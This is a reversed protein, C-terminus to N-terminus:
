VGAGGVLHAQVLFSSLMRVHSPVNQVHNWALGGCEEWVGSTWRCLFRIKALEKRIWRPAQKDDVDVSAMVRDMLRGMARLGASHMLRSQRPPRGWADPFTDKVANWYTLLVCELGKLDATGAAINRYPFLCGSPSTMSDQIVQVLTTDSVFATHSKGGPMSSRRILGRFPSDPHRNLMECLASPVRRASLHLPLVTSVEPLLETILGRPLPKTSNVRLFQERQVAVDDAVFANVPIPLTARRSKALAMARQQGDVIWATRKRGPAPVQIEVEGLASHGDDAKSGRIQRFRTSSPLAIILSNPFLVDGSDLYEVINRVHRKVESRQYGVLSGAENRSLRSIDAIRLLEEATLTLLYLPHKPDQSVRLARRRIVKHGNLGKHGNHRM